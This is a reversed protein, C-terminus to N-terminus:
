AGVSKPEDAEVYIEGKLYLTANGGIKVRNGALECYLEGGRASVQRAFLKEKGLEGAWYPILSCHIAGTVPDEDIGIRPAFMRSAFDCDEGKATIIVEDYPLQSIRHMDPQLAAVATQSELLLMLMNGQTEWYKLPPVEAVTLEPIPDREIVPYAPFDLVLKDGEKTVGLEGSRHSHFRISENELKLENFIVHASALTAHGCLNVEVKPTFWRIDYRDGSKIFFATEALNNEAAIALMTEDPLWADLPVVAAPNGAFPKSTFADVQFIQLKMKKM